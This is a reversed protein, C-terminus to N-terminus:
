HLVISLYNTFVQFYKNTRYDQSHALQGLYVYKYFKKIKHFTQPKLSHQMWIRLWIQKLTDRSGRQYTRNYDLWTSREIGTKPSHYFDPSTEWHVHGDLQITLQQNNNKELERFTRHKLWCRGRWQALKLSFTFIIQPRRILICYAWYLPLVWLPNLRTFYIGADDTFCWLEPEGLFCRM